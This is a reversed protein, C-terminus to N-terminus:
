IGHLVYGSHVGNRRRWWCAFSIAIVILAAAGFMIGVIAAVPLALRGRPEIPQPPPQSERTTTHPIPTSTPLVQQPPLLMVVAEQVSQIQLQSANFLINFDVLAAGLATSGPASVMPELTVMTANMAEPSPCAVVVQVLSVNEATAVVSSLTVNELTINPVNVVQAVADALEFAAGAVDLTGLADIELAATVTFKMPVNVAGVDNFTWNNWSRIPYVASSCSLACRPAASTSNFALLALTCANYVDTVSDVDCRRSACWLLGPYCLCGDGGFFNVCDGYAAQCQQELCTSWGAGSYPALYFQRRTSSRGSAQVYDPRPPLTPRLASRKEQSVVLQPFEMSAATNANWALSAVVAAAAFAM